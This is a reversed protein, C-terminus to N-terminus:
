DRPLLVLITGGLCLIFLAGLLVKGSVWEPAMAFYGIIAGVGCLSVVAASEIRGPLDWGAERLRFVAATLLTLGAAVLLLFRGPGTVWDPANAWLHPQWWALVALALGAGLLPWPRAYVPPAEPALAAAHAMIM